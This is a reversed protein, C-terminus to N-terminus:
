EGATAERITVIYSKGQKIFGQASPNAIGLKLQGFPTAASWAKNLGVSDAVANLEVQELGGQNPPTNWCQMKAVIADM